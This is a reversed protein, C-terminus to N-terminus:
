FLMIKHSLAWIMESKEREKELFKKLSIKERKELSIKKTRPSLHCSTRESSRTHDRKERHVTSTISIM